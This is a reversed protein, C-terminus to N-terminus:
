VSRAANSLASQGGPVLGAVMSKAPIQAKPRRESHSGGKRSITAFVLSLIAIVLISGLM